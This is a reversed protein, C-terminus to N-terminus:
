DQTFAQYYRGEPCNTGGPRQDPRPRGREVEKRAKVVSGIGLNAGKLCASQM